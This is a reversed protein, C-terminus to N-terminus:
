VTDNDGFLWSAHLRAYEDFNEAELFCICSKHYEIGAMAQRFVHGFADVHSRFGDSVAIITPGLGPMDRLEWGEDPNGAIFRGTHRKVAGMAGILQLCFALM